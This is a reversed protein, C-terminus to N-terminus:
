APRSGRRWSWAASWRRAHASTPAGSVSAREGRVLRVVGSRERRPRRGVARDQRGRPDPGARGIGSLAAARPRPDGPDPLLRPERGAARRPAPRRVAGAIRLRGQRALRGVSARVRVLGSVGIRAAPLRRGPRDRATRGGPAPTGAGRQGRAAALLVRRRGGGRHRRRGARAAGRRRRRAAGPESPGRRADEGRIRPRGPVDREVAPHGPPAPDARRGRVRLRRARRCPREHSREYRILICTAHM